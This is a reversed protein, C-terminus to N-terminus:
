QMEERTKHFESVPSSSRRGRRRLAPPEGKGGRALAHKLRKRASRVAVLHACVYSCYKRKHDSTLEYIKDCESRQCIKFRRDRLRDIIVTSLMADFTKMQDMLGILATDRFQVAIELEYERIYRRIVRVFSFPDPPLENAVRPKSLAERLIQQFTWIEDETLPRYEDIWCFAGTRKLFRELAGRETHKLELFEARVIWPDLEIRDARPKPTFEWATKQGEFDEFEEWVGAIARCRLSIPLTVNTIRHSMTVSM